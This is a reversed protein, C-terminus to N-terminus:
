CSFPLQTCRQRLLRGKVKIDALTMENDPSTIAVAEWANDQPVCVYAHPSPTM